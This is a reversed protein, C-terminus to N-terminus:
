RLYTKRIERDTNRECNSDLGIGNEVGSGEDRWERSVSKQRKIPRVHCNDEVEWLHWREGNRRKNNVKLEEM